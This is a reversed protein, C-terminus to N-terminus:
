KLEMAKSHSLNEILKFELDYKKAIKNCIPIIINSGKYYRNTPAHSIVLKKNLKSKSIYNKTEFPLFLYNINPHRELLDVENTLNLDSIKDIEPIVGRTRLDEGHYHCVIKKGNKALEKIIRSNKFFGIGSELHYIDYNLLDNKKIASMIRKENLKDKLKFFLNDLNGEPSYIPPYGNKEKYYGLKGRYLKYFNHRVNKLLPKTFNMPLNLCIDSEYNKPSHFFTISRCINGKGEHIKKWLELTGVTNEPSIYLIKLM